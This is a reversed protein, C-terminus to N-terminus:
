LVVKSLSSQIDIGCLRQGIVDGDTFKVRIQAQQPASILALTEEQTVPFNWTQTDAVYHVGTAVSKKLTGLVIEVDTVDTPTLVHSADSLRFEIEYQDGQMINVIDM